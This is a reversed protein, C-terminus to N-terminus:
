RVEAINSDQLLYYKVFNFYSNFEYDLIMILKKHFYSSTISLEVAKYFSKIACLKSILSETYTESISLHNIDTYEKFQNLLEIESQM